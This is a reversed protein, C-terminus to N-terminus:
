RAVTRLDVTVVAIRAGCTECRHSAPAPDLLSEGTVQRSRAKTAVEHGCALGLHWYRTGPRHGRPARLQNGILWLRQRLSSKAETSMEAENNMVYTEINGLHFDVLGCDRSCHTRPRGGKASAPPIPRGCWCLKVTSPANMM